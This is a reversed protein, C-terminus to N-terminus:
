SMRVAILNNRSAILSFVKPIHFDDEDPEHCFNALIKHLSLM